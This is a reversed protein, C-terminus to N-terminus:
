GLATFCDPFAAIVPGMEGSAVLRDLRQPYSEGFGTWAVRRPGSSSYAALEVLLPYRESGRDYGEPLYVTVARTSPDGVLNGALAPSDVTLTVLTGRPQAYSHVPMRPRSSLVRQA